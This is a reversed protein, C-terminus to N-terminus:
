KWLAFNVVLSITQRTVGFRRAAESQNFPGCASHERIEDVISRTLKHCPKNRNRSVMDRMNDSYTGTRLHATNVCAPNDCSHLVCLGEPIPGNNFSYSVRPSRYMRGDISFEGYGQRNKAGKWEWCENPGRVDVKKWFREEPSRKRYTTGKKSM